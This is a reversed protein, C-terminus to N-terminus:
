ADDGGDNESTSDPNAEDEFVDDDAPAPRQLDVFRAPALLSLQWDMFLEQARRNRITKAIEDRYADFTAPDSPTRKAVYAVVLGGEVPAPEAVEGQNCAVVAHVLAQVAEDESTSGSIGTFPEASEVSLGMGSVSDAFSKGAALGAVAADRVKEAKAAVADFLAKREAAKAVRDRVENFDPVRPPHVKSLFAVYVNDQGSVPAGVRDFPGEELEFVAAVFPAGADDIPLDFRSFAPVSQVPRGAKECEAAFDPIAGDRSPLARRTLETAAEDAAALAARRRLTSVISDRVDALDAVVTRKQGDEGTEESTYDDVNLEYFDQVDEDSVPLNEDLYDAVPFAAFLIERQEPITFADPKEDFFARVAADDLSVDLDDARISVYEVSFSDMLTDFTRRIELPTVFAQRGILSGLKQIAIEERVHNEFQAPSFGLPAVVGQIFQEYRPRSYRGQEDLFNSRIAGVVEEDSTSIGLKAAERLSALRIWTMRRLAQEAEPTSAFDRGSALARAMFAGLYAARYEGHSIPEGDLTGAANLRDMEEIDSPWVVGWIIFSFIIVVLFGGWLLRSQILKHFKSILMAM